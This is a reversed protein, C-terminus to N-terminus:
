HRAKRALMWRRKDLLQDIRADLEAAAADVIEALQAPTTTPGVRHVARESVIRMETMVREWEPVPPSRVVRELQDRFARVYPDAALAPDRWSSRRPPLNGTLARFKIQSSPRSLFEILQWAERPHRSGRFVVLSSGGAIGAGPGDPGPMAATMWTAQLAAPLRRQFEAISWPGHVVFSFYGRGLEEWLNSIQTETAVPALQRVFLQLYFGLAKRFGASRFNGFRDGDRLLPEGAGLALTLLQEFENVPLLISYRAPGVQRKIAEMAELWRAWTQPVAPYGAAALLDRRYFLLRTDVYWPVGYLAGDIENTAWIGPFYDSAVVERSAAVEADLPRLADLAALEAIWTNGLQAVDPTSDGVFATLLKEHASTWPLQQVDVRVGPHLREFEATLAAVEEGERGMAWLKLTIPGGDGDCGGCGFAGWGGVGGLLAAVCAAAALAARKV